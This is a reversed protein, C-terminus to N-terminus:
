KEKVMIEMAQHHNQILVERHDGGFEGDLTWPIEEEAYFRVEDARFSDILDTTDKLNTLSAIIENLEIINKPKHILTVEFLGDDLKVNKGTMGKFGGVSTSNTIMGLLFDGETEQGDYEVRMHYSKITHLRKAGELIYAVHGLVNKLEQSTAYSVDTFIGFAAVYIFFDGNFEGVDCPFRRGTVATKGAHLMNKPIKLSNAFDNTSGAPIYGIPVKAGSQMLGTVTEDLTGDGGSCVILDYYKAQERVVNTADERAQTTHVTVQYGEQVMVDIIELLRNKIQGKGSHGNIVFLLKKM